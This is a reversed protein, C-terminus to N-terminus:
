PLAWMEVHIMDNYLILGMDAQARVKVSGDFVM